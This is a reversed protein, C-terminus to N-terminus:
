DREGAAASTWAECAAILEDWDTPPRGRELMDRFVHYPDTRAGTKRLSQEDNLWVYVIIRAQSHYRFFLRFRQLFRARRWHRYASGLTRGQQFREAAPDAPIEELVLRRLILLFKAVGSTRYGAPDRRRQEAVAERLGIWREAFTPYVYITWGNVVLPPEPSSGAPPRDGSSSRAM